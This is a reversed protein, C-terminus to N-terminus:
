VCGQKRNHMLRLIAAAARRGSQGDPSGVFREVFRDRGPIKGRWESEIDEIPRSLFERLSTAFHPAGTDFWFTGGELAERVDDFLQSQKNSHLYIVPLRSLLCWSLTSSAHSVIVVRPCNLMYRLDLREEFVEINKVQRAAQHIPNGDAYRVSRYPKFLVRHPLRALVKEIIDIEWSISEQETAGGFIPRMVNGMLAQCSVYCLPPATTLGSRRTAVFALDRPLGVSEPAGRRFSNRSLVSADQASYTLYLDCTAIEATYPTADYVPSYGLGTGHQVAVHAVDRKFCLDYLAEAVPKNGRSTVVAAPKGGPLTAFVRKWHEKAARYTAIAKSARDVLTDLARESYTVGIVSNFAERVAPGILTRLSDEEETSLRTLAPKTLPVYIPRYGKLSLCWCAEKILSNDDPVLIDGRRLLSKTLRSAKVVGRYLKSQWGEFRLRTILSANPEATNISYPFLEKPIVATGRYAPLGELLTGWPSVFHHDQPLCPEVAAISRADGLSRTLIAAKYVLLEMSPVLRAITLARKAWRHDKSIIEHLTQGLSSTVDFQSRILAFDTSDELSVIRPHRALAPSSTYIHARDELELSQAYDLAARSDLLVAEIGKLSRLPASM